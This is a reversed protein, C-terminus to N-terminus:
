VATLTGPQLKTPVNIEIPSTIDVIDESQCWNAIIATHYM